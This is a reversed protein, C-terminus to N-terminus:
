KHLNLEIRWPWKYCETVLGRPWSAMQRAPPSLGISSQVVSIKVLPSFKTGNRWNAKALCQIGTLLGNRWKYLFWSWSYPKCFIWVHLLNYSVMRGKGLGMYKTVYASSGELYGHGLKLTHSHNHAKLPSFVWDLHDADNFGAWGLWMFRWLCSSGRRAMQFSAVTIWGM